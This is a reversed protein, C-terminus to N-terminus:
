SAPTTGFIPLKRAQPLSYEPSYTLVLILVYPRLWLVAIKQCARAMTMLSGINHCYESENTCVVNTSTLEGGGLPHGYPNINHYTAM